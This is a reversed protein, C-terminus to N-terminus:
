FNTALNGAEFEENWRAIFKEAQKRTMIEGQYSITNEAQKRTRYGCVIQAPACKQGQYTPREVCVIPKLREYEERSSYFNRAKM